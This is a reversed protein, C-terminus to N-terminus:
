KRATVNIQLALFAARSGDAGGPGEGLGIPVVGLRVLGPAASSFLNYHGVMNELEQMITEAKLNADAQDEDNDNIEIGVRINYEEERSPPTRGFAVNQDLAWTIEGFWLLQRPRQTGSYASDWIADDDVLFSLAPLLKAQAILARKMAFATTGGVPM